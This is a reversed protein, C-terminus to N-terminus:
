VLVFLVAFDFFKKKLNLFYLHFFFINSCHILLLKLNFKLIITGGESIIIFLYIFDSDMGLTLLSKM